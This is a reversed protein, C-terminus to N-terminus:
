SPRKTRGPCVWGLIRQAKENPVNRRNRLEYAIERLDPVFLAFAKTVHNNHRGGEDSEPVFV